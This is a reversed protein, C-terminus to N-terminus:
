DKKGPEKAPRGVSVYRFGIDAVRDPEYVNRLDILLARRMIPKLRELELNRFQNWETVIVLADASEAM